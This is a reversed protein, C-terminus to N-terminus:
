YVLMRFNNLVGLDRVLTKITALEDLCHLQFTLQFLFIINKDMPIRVRFRSEKCVLHLCKRNSCNLCRCFYSHSIFQPGFACLMCVSKSFGFQLNPLAYFFSSEKPSKDGLSQGGGWERLWIFYLLM